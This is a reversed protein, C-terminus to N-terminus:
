KNNLKAKQRGHAGGLDDGTHWVGGMSAFIVYPAIALGNGKV